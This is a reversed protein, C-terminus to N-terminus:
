QKINITKYSPLMFLSSNEKQQFLQIFFTLWLLMSSYKVINSFNNTYIYCWLFLLWHSIILNCYIKFITRGIDASITTSTWFSKIDPLKAILSKPPPLPASTLHEWILNHNQGNYLKIFIIKRNSWFTSEKSINLYVIILHM